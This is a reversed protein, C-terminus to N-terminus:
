EHQDEEKIERIIEYAEDLENELETEDLVDVEDEELGRYKRLIEYDSPTLDIM